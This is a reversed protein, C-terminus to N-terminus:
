FTKDKINLLKGDVVAGTYPGGYKQLSTGEAAFPAGIRLGLGGPHLDHVVTLVAHVTLFTYMGTGFVCDSGCLVSPDMYIKLFTGSAQGTYLATGAARQGILSFILCDVLDKVHAHLIDIEILFGASADRDGSPFAHHLGIKRFVQDSVEFLFSDMSRDLGGAAHARFDKVPKRREKVEQEKVDLAIISFLVPFSCADPCIQNM